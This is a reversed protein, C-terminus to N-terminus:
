RPLYAYVWGDGAILFLKADRTNVLMIRAGPVAVPSGEEEGTDADLVYLTSGKAALLRNGMRVLIRDYQKGSWMPMNGRDTLELITGGLTLRDSGHLDTRGQTPLGNVLIGKGRVALVEGDFEFTAQGAGLRRDSVHLDDKAGTGLKYDQGKRLLFTRGEDPGATVKLEYVVNDKDFAALGSEMKVVVLNGFVLPASRPREGVAISWRRSGTARDLCYVIGANDVLYLAGVEGGPVDETLFFDHRVENDLVAQWREAAPAIGYNNADLCTVIGKNDVFYLRPDRPDGGVIPTRDLLGNTRYGWGMQGSILSFSELTKNRDPSGLSPLYFTDSQAAGGGTPVFPLQLYPRELGNLAGGVYRMTKSGSFLSVAHAYRRSILLVSTQNEAAPYLSPELLNTTWRPKLTARELAYIRPKNGAGEVIILDRLTHAQRARFGTQGSGLNLRLIVGDIHDNLQALAKEVADRDAMTDAAPAAAPAKAGGGSKKRGKASQCAILSVFLALLCFRRM